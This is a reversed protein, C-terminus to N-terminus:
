LCRSLGDCGAWAFLGDGQTLFLAFWLCPVSRVQVMGDQGGAVLLRGDCRFCGSYATDKFRSFTRGVQRTYGNYVVVQLGTFPNLLCGCMVRVPQLLRLVHCLNNYM